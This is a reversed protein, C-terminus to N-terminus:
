SHYLWSMPPRMEEKKHRGTRLMTLIEDDTQDGIGSKKDPTLNSTYTTGWPGNMPTGGAMYMSMEPEFSSPKLPTHCESCHGLSVLYKGLAVPDGRPPDPVNSVSVTEPPFLEFIISIPFDLQPKPTENVVPPITRMYAVIARVDNDSIDKYAPYPMIPILVRGENDVGVRIARILEGDTWSGIGTEVDPTINPIPIIGLGEENFITGGALHKELVPMGHFTPTHCAACAGIGEVLYKGRNVRDETLVIEETTAKPVAACSMGLLGIVFIIGVFGFVRKKM